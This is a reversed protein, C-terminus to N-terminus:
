PISYEFIFIRMGGGSLTYPTMLYGLAAIAQIM